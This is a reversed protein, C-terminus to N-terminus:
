KIIVSGVANEEDWEEVTPEDFLIDNQKITLTYTYRNGAVWSHPAQLPLEYTKDSTRIFLSTGSVSSPFVLFGGDTVDHYENSSSSLTKDLGVKEINGQSSYSWLGDAYSGNVPVYKLSVNNITVNVEAKIKVVVNALLHQFNLPVVSGNTPASAGAEVSATASAVMIDEQKTIDFNTISFSQTSSGNNVALTGASPVSPYFAKFYYDTDPLWYEPTELAWIDRGGVVSHTVKKAFSTSGVNGDVFAYVMFGNTKLDDITATARTDPSDFLIPYKVGQPIDDHQQCSVVGAALMAACAILGCLKIRM